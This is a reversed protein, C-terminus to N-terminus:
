GSCCGSGTLFLFAFFQLMNLKAFIVMFLVGTQKHEKGLM